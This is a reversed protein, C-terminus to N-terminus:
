KSDNGRCLYTSEPALPDRSMGVLEEMTFTSYPYIDRTRGGGCHSWLFLAIGCIQRNSFM